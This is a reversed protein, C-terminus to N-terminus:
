LRWKSKPPPRRPPRNPLTFWFSLGPVEEIVPETDSVERLRRMWDQYEASATFRRRDEQTAFRDVVTYSRSDGPQRFVNIGVHGPQRMVEAIFQQMLAEFREESGPKIRRQVVATLPSTKADATDQLM